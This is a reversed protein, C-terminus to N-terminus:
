PCEAVSTEYPLDGDITWAVDQEWGAESVELRWQDAERGYLEAATAPELGTVEAVLEAGADGNAEDHLWAIASSMATCYRDFATSDAFDRTTMGFVASEDDGLDFTTGNLASAVLRLDVGAAAALEPTAGSTVLADVQEEVLAPIATASSGTALFTVDNDPDLGAQVLLYRAFLDAAGGLAPVGISLGRLAEYAEPSGEVLEGDVAAARVWLEYNLGLAPGTALLEEGELMPPMVNGPGGVGVQTTGGILAAVNEPGSKFPVLEVDLGAADFFGEDDAVWWALSLASNPYYGLTIAEREGAADSDAEAGGAPTSGSAGTTGDRETTATRDDGGGCAALLLASVVATTVWRTRTRPRM